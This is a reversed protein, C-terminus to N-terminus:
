DEESLGAQDLADKLGEAVEEQEGVVWFNLYSFGTEEKSDQGGFSTITIHHQTLTEMVKAAQWGDLVFTGMAAVQGGAMKQLLISTAPAMDRQSEIAAIPTAEETPFEFRLTRGELEGPGLIDVTKSWDLSPRPGNATIGTTVEKTPSSSSVPQSMPTGTSSLILKTAWALNSRAGKGRVRLRKIAPSEDLFPSYLATIELGNRLAQATARPVETDLLVIDGALHTSKGGVRFIFRSTLGEPELPVGKVVVNLDTRPFLIQLSAGQRTGSRGLIDEVPKWEMPDAQGGALAALNFCIFCLLISLALRNM